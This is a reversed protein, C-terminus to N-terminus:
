RNLMAEVKGRDLLSVERMSKGLLTKTNMFLEAVKVGFGDPLAVELDVAFGYRRGLATLRGYLEKLEGVPRAGALLDLDSDDNTYPLGTFIELGASGLVGLDKGENWAAIEKAARLVRTREEFDSHLLRVPTIYERIEAEEAFTSIRLRQGQHRRLPVFGLPVMGPRVTESRRVIGPMGTGGAGEFAFLEKLASLIDPSSKQLIEASIRLREEKSLVALSHRGYTRLETKEM